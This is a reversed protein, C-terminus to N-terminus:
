KCFADYKEKAVKEGFTRVLNIYRTDNDREADDCDVDPLTQGTKIVYGVKGCDCELSKLPTDEPYVGVWRHFCKLCILEAVEHTLNDEISTM